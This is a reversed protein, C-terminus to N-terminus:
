NSNQWPPPQKGCFYFPKKSSVEDQSDLKHKPRGRQKPEAKLKKLVERQEYMERWAGSSIASPFAPARRKRKLEITKPNYLHNTIEKLRVQYVCSEIVTNDNVNFESLLVYNESNNVDDQINCNFVSTIDESKIFVQESDPAANLSPGVNANLKNPDYGHSQLENSVENVVDMDQKQHNGQQICKTYDVADPNFPFLGCKRFGNIITDKLSGNSKKLLVEQLLPCFTLRTVSEGEHELQWKRVVKKWEDKLPKFMTLDCTQM